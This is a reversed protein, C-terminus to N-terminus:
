LKMRGKSAVWVTAIAVAVFANLPKIENALSQLNKSISGQRGTVMAVFPVNSTQADYFPDITGGMGRRFRSDTHWGGLWAVLTPGTWWLALPLSSQLFANGLGVLGLSWLGPHRTIRELGRVAENSEHKEAFDFPCRVQLRYLTSGQHNENSPAMMFPIQMKPLTQSAMILGLALATWSAVMNRVPLRNIPSISSGSSEKRLKYYAYGISATAATSFTGYILHYQEDGLQEILWTRNESIIANEAVFFIWGSAAWQVPSSTVVKRLGTTTAM